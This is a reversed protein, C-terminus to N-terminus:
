PIGGYIFSPLSQCHIVPTPSICPFGLRQDLAGKSYLQVAGRDGFVISSYLLLFVGPCGNWNLDLQHATYYCLSLQGFALFRSHQVLLKGRHQVLLKGRHQVLLKGRHQVFQGKGEEDSALDSTLLSLM